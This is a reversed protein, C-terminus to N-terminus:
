PGVGIMGDHAGDEGTGFRVYIPRGWAIAIGNGHPGTKMVLTTGPRPELSVGDVVVLSGSANSALMSLLKGKRHAVLALQSDWEYWDEEGLVVVNAGVVQIPPSGREKTSDVISATHEVALSPLRAAVVTTGGDTELALYARGGLLAISHGPDYIAARHPHDHFVRAGVIAGTTRDIVIAHFVGPTLLSSPGGNVDVYFGLVVHKEDAAISPANGRGVNERALVNAHLDLTLLDVPRDGHDSGNVVYIRDGARVAHIVDGRSPGLDHRSIERGESIGWEVACLEHDMGTPLFHDTIVHVTGSVHAKSPPEAEVIAATTRFGGVPFHTRSWAGATQTFLMAAIFLGKKV